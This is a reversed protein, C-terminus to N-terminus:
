LKEPTMSRPLPMLHSRLFTAGYSLYSSTRMGPEQVQIPNTRIKGLDLEVNGDALVTITIVSVQTSHLFESFRQPNDALYTYNPIARLKRVVSAAKTLAQVLDWSAWNLDIIM